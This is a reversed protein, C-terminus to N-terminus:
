RLAWALYGCIAGGSVNGQLYESVKELCRLAQLIEAPSRSQGIQRVTESQAQMGSRYVLAQQLIKRWQTFEELLQERPFKEMPALTQTLLLADAQSFARVFAQTQDSLSAGEELAQKAQGLYGGSQSIAGDIATKDAQPYERQLASRLVDEPLSQLRLEVCRSRITTLLKESSDALLFFVGYAPPEELVKLLANQGEPRMDMARPIMYIKKDAENPQVYMDARANRILDISVTKKEPDDVTIFDPHNDTLVKRCSACTLCPKNEEKCLIAAALLRALTRKGSGEPGTILYCHSIRGRSIGAKLNEKLQTNGLLGEFGM